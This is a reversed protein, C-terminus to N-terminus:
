VAPGAQYIRGAALRRDTLAQTRAQVARLVEAPATAPSGASFIPHPDYAIDLQIEQAVTDGRLLAAVQLAGDIGATIGGTTILSGDVVVRETSVTAGYYPLVDLAAWHTTARRGQLLGAAGCLLAGTCVSFVYSAGAAQQRIFSIVVEDTMLGEQGKGGPVLLVDLQPAERLTTDPLLRLGNLDTVPELEKWLTLFRSNPVRSLATFPGTFDCQDLGPFILGGITLQRETTTAPM